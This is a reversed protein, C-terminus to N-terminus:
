TTEETWDDIRALIAVRYADMAQYQDHLLDQDSFDLAMFSKYTLAGLDDMRLSLQRFEEQAREKSTDDPFTVEGIRLTEFEKDLIALLHNRNFWRPGLDDDWEFTVTMQAM